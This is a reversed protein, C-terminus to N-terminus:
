QYYVKLRVEFSKKLLNVNADLDYSELIIQRGAKGLKFRLSNDEILRLIATVTEEVNSPAVLLGNIENKILEPIGNITTAICPIGMSMAEMLVVPVGEAFSLLAFIDARRYVDRTQEPNLAGKFTIIGQLDMQAVKNELHPKESGDGVFCVHIRKGLKLLEQVAQILIEQGKTATMRGVCLIEFPQPHEHFPKPAYVDPDVGLPIVDIKGWQNPDLLRLIQSRAYFSICFIFDAYQVKEKLNNLTVDYFEDPGHITISYSCPFIRTLILAVTSAPNAFHVHLHKIDKDKMWKVLLCAEGLYCFHYFLKRLDFKALKIAFVVGQFLSIPRIVSNKLVEVMARLIGQKKVYHTQNCEEIDIPSLQEESINSENISATYITVGKGRLALIERQIFTHSVAPYQSILYGIKM